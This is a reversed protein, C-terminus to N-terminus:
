NKVKLQGFFGVEVGSGSAVFNLLFIYLDLGNFECLYVFGHNEVSALGHFTFRIIRGAM